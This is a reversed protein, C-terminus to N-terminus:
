TCGKYMIENKIVRIECYLLSARTRIICHDIVAVFMRTHTVERKPESFADTEAMMIIELM